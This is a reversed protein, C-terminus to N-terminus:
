LLTTSAIPLIVFLSPRPLRQLPDDSVTFLAIITVALWSAVYSWAFSPIRLLLAMASPSPGWTVPLKATPITAVTADFGTSTTFVRTIFMFTPSPIFAGHSPANPQATFVTLASPTIASYLPNMGVNNLRAM